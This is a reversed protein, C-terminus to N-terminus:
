RMRRQLKAVLEDVDRQFAQCADSLMRITMEDRQLRYTLSPLGPWYLVLDCWKRGFVWLGGQCQAIHETPVIEASHGTLRPILLEPTVSKFEVMGEEGVLGDPSSGIKGWPMHRIAFPVEQVECRNVLEYDARAIPEMKKGREMHWNRYSEPHPKGTVVEGAVIYLYRERTKSEADGRGGRMTMKMNSATVMGARAEFWEDSGQEFGDLIELREAPPAKEKAKAM